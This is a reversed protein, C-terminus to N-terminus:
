LFTWLDAWQNLQVRGTKHLPPPPLDSKETHWTGDTNLAKNHDTIQNLADEIAQDINDKTIFTVVELKVKRVEAEIKEKLKADRVKKDEIAQLVRLKRAEKEEKLRVERMQAIEKNWADNIEACKAFDEEEAKEFM